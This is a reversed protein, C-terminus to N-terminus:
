LLGCGAFVIFNLSKRDPGIVIQYPDTNLVRIPLIPPNKAKLGNIRRRRNKFETNLMKNVVVFKLSKVGM